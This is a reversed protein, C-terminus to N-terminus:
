QGLHSTGVPAPFTQPCVPCVAPMVFGVRKVRLPVRKLYDHAQRRTQGPEATLSRRSHARGVIVIPVRLSM